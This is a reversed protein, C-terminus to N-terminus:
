ARGRRMRSALGLGAIAALLALLSMDTTEGTSCSKKDGGGKKKKGGGGGGATNGNYTFTFPNEDMDNNDITVTFSFAGAATPTISVIFLDSQRVIFFSGGISAGLNTTVTATCNVQNSIVAGSPLNLTNAGDNFVTFTRSFNAVGTNNETVSTGNVINAPVSSEVAIEPENMAQVTGTYTFQFNGLQTTAITVTVTFPGAGLDPDLQLTFWDDNGAMITFPLATNPIINRTVGSGTTTIGTVDLSATGTNYIAFNGNYVSGMSYLGYFIQSQGSTILNNNPDEVEIEPAAVAINISFVQTPDTGVGNTATITFPGYNGADGMGPTGSLTDTGDWMLWAPLTGMISFTPAPLGSATATYSYMAGEMGSTIPTSTFAPAVPASTTITLTAASCSGTDGGAHDRINLTWTGNAQGATLGIFASGSFLNAAGTNPLSPYYSGPAVPNVPTVAWFSTGSDIFEYTGNLDSSHGFTSGPVGPRAFITHSNANPDTLTVSLDGVWTHTLDLSLSVDSVLDTLGTVNFTINIGTPNNDPIAGTGTGTFNTQAQVAPAMLAALGALALFGLCIRKFM